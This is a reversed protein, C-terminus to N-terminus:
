TSNASKASSCTPNAWAKPRTTTAEHPTLRMKRRRGGSHACHLVHSTLLLLLMPCRLCLVFHHIHVLEKLASPALDQASMTVLKEPTLIGRYLRRALDPNATDTLNFKLSRYKELYDKDAAGRLAACRLAACRLAACRLATLLFWSVACCLM